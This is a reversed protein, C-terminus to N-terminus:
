PQGLCPLGFALTHTWLHVVLRPNVTKKKVEQGIGEEEEEQGGGDDGWGLPLGDGRKEIM